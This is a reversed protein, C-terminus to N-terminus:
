ARSARWLAVAAGVLLFVPGLGGHLVIACWLGATFVWLAREQSWALAPRRGEAV